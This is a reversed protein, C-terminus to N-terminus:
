SCGEIWAVEPLKGSRFSTVKGQRDTEFILRYNSDAASKPVFTLYHGGSYPHPSVEIQGPYLAKIQDETSGIGAGSRTTIASNRGIDIRVIRNDITMLSVGKAGGVFQYFTCARNTPHNSESKAPLGVAQTAEMVTMGIRIPHIGNIVLKSQDTLQPTSPKPSPKSSAKPSPKSSAKPSPSPSAPSAPAPSPSVSAIPTPSVPNYSALSAGIVAAIAVLIAIFWYPTKM